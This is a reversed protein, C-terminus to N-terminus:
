ADDDVEERLVTALKQRAKHLHVRATPAACGLVDAIENIPRDEFYFLVIAVRQAYPLRRVAQVVDDDAPHGDAPAVVTATRFRSEVLDRLRERRAARGALRIAVRRVWAGPEDYGSVKTWHALLQLFADQAVEEARGQDHVILYVTRKVRPFEARFFATFDAAADAVPVERPRTAVAASVSRSGTARM